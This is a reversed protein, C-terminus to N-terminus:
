SWNLFTDLIPNGNFIPYDHSIKRRNARRRTAGVRLFKRRRTAARAVTKRGAAVQTSDCKGIRDNQCIIRM